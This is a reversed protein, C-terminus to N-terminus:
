IGKCRLEDPLSFQPERHGFKLGLSEVKTFMSGICTGSYFSPALADRSGRFRSLQTAMPFGEALPMPAATVGAGRVKALM